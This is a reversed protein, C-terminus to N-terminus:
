DTGTGTNVFFNVTSVVVPLQLPVTLGQIQSCCIQFEDWPNLSEDWTLKEFLEVHKLSEPIRLKKLLEAHKLSQPIGLKSFREAHKLSELSEPIRTKQLFEVSM